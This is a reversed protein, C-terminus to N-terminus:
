LSGFKSMMYERYEEDTFNSKLWVLQKDSIMKILGVGEEFTFLGHKSLVGIEEALNDTISDVFKMLELSTM